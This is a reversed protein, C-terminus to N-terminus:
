YFNLRRVSCFLFSSSRRHPAPRQYPLQDRKEALEGRLTLSIKSFVRFFLFKGLVIKKLIMLNWSMYIIWLARIKLIAENNLQSDNDSKLNLFKVTKVFYFQSKFFRRMLSSWHMFLDVQRTDFKRIKIKHKLCIM